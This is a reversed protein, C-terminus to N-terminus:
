IATGNYTSMLDRVADRTTESFRGKVISMNLTAQSLGALEAMRNTSMEYARQFARISALLADAENDSLMPKSGGWRKSM